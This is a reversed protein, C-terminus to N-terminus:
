KSGLNVWTTLPLAWVSGPKGPEAGLSHQVMEVVLNSQRRLVGCESAHFAFGTTGSQSGTLAIGAPSIELWMVSDSRLIM